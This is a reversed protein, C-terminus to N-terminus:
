VYEEMEEENVSQPLIIGVIESTGMEVVIVWEDTIRYGVRQGFYKLADILVYSELTRDGSILKRAIEHKDTYALKNTLLAPKGKLNCPVLEEDVLIEGTKIDRPLKEIYDIMANEKPIYVGISGSAIVIHTDANIINMFDAKGIYEKQIKKQIKEM